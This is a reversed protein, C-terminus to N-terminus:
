RKKAINEMQPEVKIFGTKILAKRTEGMRKSEAIKESAQKELLMRAGLNGKGASQAKSYIMIVAGGVALAAGGTM